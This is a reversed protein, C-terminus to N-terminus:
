SNRKLVIERYKKSNWSNIMMRFADYKEVPVYTKLIVLKRAIHLQNGEVTVSCEISGFENNMNLTAVPSIMSIGEPMTIFIDYSEIIPFPIELPETRSSVLETMHWSDSGMPMSPLKLFVHGAKVNTYSGSSAKFNFSALDIDTKGKVIETIKGNGLGGSLMVSTFSSDKQVKFWPNLRGGLELGLNGKLNLNTDLEMNGSLSLINKPEAIVESTQIKGPVLSIIRKGALMYRLDQMDPQVPSLFIPEMGQISAKVLCREFLAPSAVKKSYYREALVAVAEAQIGQSRLMATLLIAKEAENGGNAQWIAAITRIKYATNQLPVPWTNLEGAVKEQLKLVKLLPKEIGSVATAAEAKVAAPMEYNFAEQSAFLAIADLAKTSAVFVIRARNQQERPRFDEHLAAPLNTVSWTYIARGAQKVLSLRGPVNFLEYNFVAGSPVNIILTLKRVPSNMCLQENGMMASTYGKLST